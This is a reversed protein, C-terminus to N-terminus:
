AAAAAAETASHFRLVALLCMYKTYFTKLTGKSDRKKLFSFEKCQLCKWLLNFNQFARHETVRELAAGKKKNLVKALDRTQLCGLLRQDPQPSVNFFLAM